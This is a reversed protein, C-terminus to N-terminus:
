GIWFIEQSTCLHVSSINPVPYFLACPFPAGWCSAALAHLDGNGINRLQNVLFTPPLGCLKHKIHAV